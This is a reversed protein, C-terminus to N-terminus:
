EYEEDKNKFFTQISSVIRKMDDIGYRQDCVLSLEGKYVKKARNSIGRHYESLPWHIPCYIQNKILYQRLADRQGNKVFVSLFFPCDLDHSNDVLQDIEETNHIGERLIQANQQRKKRTIVIERKFEFLDILANPAPLRDMYDISLEHSARLFKELYLQKEIKKENIFNNKLVFGQTRLKVFEYNPVKKPELPKKDKKRAIALGDLAFWKRYSEFSYEAESVYGDCLCSHTMDEVAVSWRRINESCIGALINSGFYKMYLLMENEKASPLKAVLEGSHYDQIVDFFRVSINNRYFPEIMSDCCYSPLIAAKIGYNEIADRVIADLATRGSLYISENDAIFINKEKWFESGIEKFM